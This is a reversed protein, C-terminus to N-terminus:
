VCVVIVSINNLKMLYELRYKITLMEILVCGFRFVFRCLSLYM